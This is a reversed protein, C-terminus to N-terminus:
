LYFEPYYIKHNAIEKTITKIRRQIKHRTFINVGYDIKKYKEIKRKLKKKHNLIRREDDSLPQYGGGSSFGDCLENFTRNYDYRM